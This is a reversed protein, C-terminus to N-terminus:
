KWIFEEPLPKGKIQMRVISGFQRIIKKVPQTEMGLVKFILGSENPLYSIGAALDCDRNIFAQTLAYIRVADDPPTLVIVNAFVDYHHM